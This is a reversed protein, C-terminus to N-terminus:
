QAQKTFVHVKFVYTNMANGPYVLHFVRNPNVRLGDGHGGTVVVGEREGLLALDVPPTVPAGVAM